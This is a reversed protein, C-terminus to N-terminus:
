DQSVIQYLLHPTDGATKLTSMKIKHGIRLFENVYIHM